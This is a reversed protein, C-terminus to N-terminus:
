FWLAGEFDAVARWAASAAEGEDSVVLYKLYWGDVLQDPDGTVPVITGTITRGHGAGEDVVLDLIQQALGVDGVRVLYPEADPTTIRLEVFSIVGAM